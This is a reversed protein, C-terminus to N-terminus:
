MSHTISCTAGAGASSRSSPRAGAASHPRASCRAQSPRRAAICADCTGSRAPMGRDSSATLRFPPAGTAGDQPTVVAFM